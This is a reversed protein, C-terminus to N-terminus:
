GPPLVGVVHLAGGAILAAVAALVILITRAKSRTAPKQM